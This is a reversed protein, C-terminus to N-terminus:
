SHVKTKKHPPEKVNELNEGNEERQKEGNEKVKDDIAEIEMGEYVNSELVLPVNYKLKETSWLLIEQPHLKLKNFTWTYHLQGCRKKLSDLMANIYHKDSLTLHRDIFDEDAKSFLHMWENSLHQFIEEISAKANVTAPDSFWVNEEICGVYTVAFLIDFVQQHQNTNRANEVKSLESKLYEQMKKGLVEIVEDEAEKYIKIMHEHLKDMAHKTSEPLFISHLRRLVLDMSITEPRFHYEHALIAVEEPLIAPSRRLTEGKCDLYEFYTRIPDIRDSCINTSSCESDKVENADNVSDKSLL